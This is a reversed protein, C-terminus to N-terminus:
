PLRRGWVRSSSARSLRKQKRRAATAAPIAEGSRSRRRAVVPVNEKHPKNFVLPLLNGKKKKKKKPHSFQKTTTRELVLFCSYSSHSGHAHETHCSPLRSPSFWHALRHEWSYTWHRSAPCAVPAVSATKWPWWWTRSRWASVRYSVRLGMFEGDRMCSYTARWLIFSKEM